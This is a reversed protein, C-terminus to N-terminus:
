EGGNIILDVTGDDNNQVAFTPVSYVVNEVKLTSLAATASEGVPNAVVNVSEGGESVPIQYVEGDISITTLNEGTGGPNAIVTSGSGGGGGSGGTGQPISFVTGNISIKELAEGAEQEPNGVVDSLSYTVGNIFITTLAGGSAEGGPNAAVDTEEGDSTSPEWSVSDVRGNTVTCVLRYTGNGDPPIIAETKPIDYTVSQGGEPTVIVTDKEGTGWYMAGRQSLLGKNEMALRMVRAPLGDSIRGNSDTFNTPM